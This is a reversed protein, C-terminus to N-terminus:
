KILGKIIKILGILGIIEDIWLVRKTKPNIFKKNYQSITKNLRM